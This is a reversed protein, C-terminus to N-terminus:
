IIIWSFVNCSIGVSRGDVMGIVTVDFLLVLWYIVGDVHM